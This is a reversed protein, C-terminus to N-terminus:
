TKKIKKRKMKTPAPAATGSAGGANRIAREQAERVLRHDEELLVEDVAERLRDLNASAVKEPDKSNKDKKYDRIEDKLAPHKEVQEFYLFEKTEDDVAGRCRAEIKNYLTRYQRLYDLTTGKLKM